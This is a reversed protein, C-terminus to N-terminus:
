FSFRRWAELFGNQTLHVDDIHWIKNSFGDGRDTLTHVDLFKFGFAISKHKLQSNFIRITIILLEIQSDTYKETDINPCPVGQVIINHHSDDNLKKIYCLFAEVTSEIIEDLNKHPFKEKQKIVGSDIRCDIEGITLLVESFKPIEFFLKEFKIKYNNEYANGLAWQTCGKILMAKCCFDKELNQIPLQHSVLSHSEGIVYLTELNEDASLHLGNDEHWLLLRSVYRHYAKENAFTQATKKHINSAATLRKISESFETKLFYHLALNVNARLGYNELDIRVIRQLAEIEAVSDNLYHFIDALNSIAEVFDPDISIAQKLSSAAETLRGLKRLANGRNNQAAAYNPKSQIALAYNKEAEQLRGQAEIVTGIDNYAEAYNPKLRIAQRYSIEAEDLRELERLTNGLSYHGEAFGPKLDIVQRHSTIAEDLQGLDSLLVALNAHAEHDKPDFNIANKIAALAEARRGTDNLTASLVKWAFSNRPFDEIISRAIREAESHRGDHYAIALNTNEEESPASQNARLRKKKKEKKKEVLKSRKESFTANRKQNAFNPPGGAKLTNFSAALAELETDSFGQNKADEYARGAQELANVTSLAGIYSLWFQFITPNSTIAAEFLPLAQEVKNCTTLLVGLNHNADPHIPQSKLIHRYNSEAVTLNGVEHAAVGQLLAQEISLEM